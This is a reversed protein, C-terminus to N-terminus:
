FSNFFLTVPSLALLHVFDDISENVHGLGANVQGKVLYIDPFSRDKKLAKLLQKMASEFEGKNAFALAM